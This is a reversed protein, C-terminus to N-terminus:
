GAGGEQGVTTLTEVRTIVLSSYDANVPTSGSRGCTMAITGPQTLTVASALTVAERVGTVRDGSIFLDAGLACMYGQSTAGSTNVFTTRGIVTYHGAPLTGSTVVATQSTTLSTSQGIVYWADSPGRAGTEGKAGAPLAGAKFDSADLSGKKVKAGTVANKKLQATGVSNRPLQTVAWGTGTVSFVLAITAVVLAPSPRRM